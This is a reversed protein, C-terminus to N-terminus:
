LGFILVIFQLSLLLGNHMFHLGIPVFINKSKVLTYAFVAGPAGYPIIYLLDTPTQYSTLVHMSGFVLGSVLIFIWNYPIIKRLSLRFVLEEIMPAFVVAAIFVLLPSKNLTSRILEENNAIGGGTIIIILANSFMMIALAIFWYKIYKYFYELHHKKLDKFDKKLTKRFILYLLVLIVVDVMLSYCMKVHVNLSNVDINLLALPLAAYKNIGFYVFIALLGLLADKMYDFYAKKM